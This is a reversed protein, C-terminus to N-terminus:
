RPRSENIVVLVFVHKDNRLCSYRSRKIYVRMRAEGELWLWLCSPTCSTSTRSLQSHSDGCLVDVSVGALAAARRQTRGTPVAAQLNCV